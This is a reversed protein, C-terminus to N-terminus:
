YYVIYKKQQEKQLFFLFICVLRVVVWDGYYISYPQKTDMM